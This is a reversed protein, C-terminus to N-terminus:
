PNKGPKLLLRKRIYSELAGEWGDAQQLSIKLLPQIQKQFLLEDWVSLRVLQTEPYMLRLADALFDQWALLKWAPAGKRGLDGAEDGAGFCSVAKPNTWAQQNRAAKLCEAQKQRCFRRYKELSFGPEVQQYLASRLTISRYKNFHREDDWFLLYFENEFFPKPFDLNLSGPAGGLDEWVALLEPLVGKQDFAKRSPLRHAGEFPRLDLQDLLLSQMKGSLFSM